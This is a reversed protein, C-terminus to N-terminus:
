LKHGKNKFIDQAGQLPIGGRYNRLCDVLRCKRLMLPKTKKVFLQFHFKLYSESEIHLVFVNEFPLLYM